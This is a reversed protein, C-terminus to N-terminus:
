ILECIVIIQKNTKARCTILVLNTKDLSVHMEAEGTKEVDYIEVVKYNYTKGFHQIIVNDGIVLKYLNKFYSVKSNGSHSALYVNGGIEGFESSDELIEINYNVNNKSNFRDYIGKELGIKPINIITNYKIDQKIEDKENESSFYTDYYESIAMDEDITEKLTTYSDYVVFSIGLLFLFSGITILWSKNIKKRKAM